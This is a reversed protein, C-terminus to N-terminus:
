QGQGQGMEDQVGGGEMDPQPEEGEGSKAEFATCGGEPNVQMKLVGCQQDQGMYMCMGCAHPEDHYNVAEPKIMPFDVDGDMDPDAGGGQAQEPPMQEDEPMGGGIPAPSGFSGGDAMMNGGRPMNGQAQGHVPRSGAVPYNPSRPPMGAAPPRGAMRGPGPAGMSPSMPRAGQPMGRRGDAFMSGQGPGKQIPPGTMRDKNQPASSPLRVKGRYSPPATSSVMGPRQAM